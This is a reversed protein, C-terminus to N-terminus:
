RPSEVGRVTSAPNDHDRGTPHQIDNCSLFQKHSLTIQVRSRCPPRTGVTMTPELLDDRRARAPQPRNRCARRLRTAASRASRGAAPRSRGPVRATYCARLKKFVFPLGDSRLPDPTSMAHFHLLACVAFLRALRLNICTSVKQVQAVPSKAQNEPDRPRLAAGLTRRTKVCARGSKQM